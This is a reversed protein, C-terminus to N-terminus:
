YDFEKEEPSCYRHNKNLQDIISVDQDSLSFDFISFNEKLRKLSSTKPIVPVSKQICWRLLVQAGSKGYKKGIQEFLKESKLLEGKGLPRYALLCIGQRHCFELLKKQYLYPHFEVQNCAISLGGDLIDQLHHITFNSVGIHRTKGADVLRSMAKLMKNLPRKHDPWHILYLDLYDTKLEKLARDCAQGVSATINDDDVQDLALKSTIFLQDRAFGHLGKGVAEHNEYVHATDFHRYGIDLAEKVVKVCEEGWLGYTGLGVFPIKLKYPTKM